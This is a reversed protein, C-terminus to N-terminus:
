GVARLGGVVPSAAAALQGSPDPLLLRATRPTLTRKSSVMVTVERSTLCGHGEGVGAWHADSLSITAVARPWDGAVLLVAGRDRLRASLRAADADRVQGAPRVAVVPLVELLAATVALWREGPDPVIALQGLLVGAREAAEIGLEPMGVVGCWSGAQSPKALLALLLAGPSGVQYAAGPRLGGDLLGFLEPPVPFLQEPVQTSSLKTRLRQLAEGSPLTAHAPRLSM